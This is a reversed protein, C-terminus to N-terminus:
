NLNLEEIKDATGRYSSGWSSAVGGLVLMTIGVGTVAGGVGLALTKDYDYGAIMAVLGVITVLGGWRMISEGRNGVDNALSRVIESRVRLTM